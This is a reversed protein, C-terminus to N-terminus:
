GLSSYTYSNNKTCQSPSTHKIFVLLLVVLVLMLKPKYDLSSLALSTLPNKMPGLCTKLHEALFVHEAIALLLSDKFSSQIPSFDRVNLVEVECLILTIIFLLASLPFWLLVMISEVPILSKELPKSFYVGWLTALSESRIFYSMKKELCSWPQTEWSAWMSSSLALALLAM